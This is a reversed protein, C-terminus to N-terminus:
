RLASELAGPRVTTVGVGAHRLDLLDEAVSGNMQKGLALENGFPHAMSFCLLNQVVQGSVDLRDGLLRPIAHLVRAEM